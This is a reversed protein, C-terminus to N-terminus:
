KVVLADNAEPLLCTNNRGALIFHGGQAQPALELSAGNAACLERAIFLGLGTGQNHTTFFPEFIQERASESVGPGNDIVHLEVGEPQDSSNLLLRVSAPSRTSYRLANSVLNWLVQHLHARDFCITLPVSFQLCIVDSALGEAANFEDIFSSCFQALEFSEPQARNQRGLELVDKVIRDLRVVNDNLIKLLRDQM